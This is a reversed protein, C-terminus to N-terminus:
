DPQFVVDPKIRHGANAREQIAGTEFNQLQLSKAESRTNQRRRKEMDQRSEPGGNPATRCLARRVRRIAFLRRGPCIRLLTVSSKPSIADPCVSRVNTRLCQKDDCNGLPGHIGGSCSMGTNTEPAPPKM